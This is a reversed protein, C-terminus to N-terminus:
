LFINVKPSSEDNRRGETKKKSGERKEQSQLLSLADIPFSKPVRIDRKARRM